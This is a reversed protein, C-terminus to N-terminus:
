NGSRWDQGLVVTADVFLTSDPESKVTRIGLRQAVARAVAPDGTRDIVFSSDPLPESRYNGVDVVDFGGARLRETAGRALGVTMTGNLVQVRGAPAAAPDLAVRHPLAAVPEAAGQFPWRVGRGFSVLFAAALIWAAVVGLRELNATRSETM